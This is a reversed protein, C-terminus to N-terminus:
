TRQAPLTVDKLPNPNGLCIFAAWYRPHEYPLESNPKQSLRRLYNAIGKSRKEAWQIAEETLWQSRMQGITLNRIDSKAKRLAEAKSLKAQLLYNYFHEMLITTAVDDVKWLSMIVTKAGAQIFSRRLGIVTEGTHIDGLATECASTIVLETGALDISQVDLATLLGDEAEEPLIGGNLMTNVGAFALGSRLLPNQMGGLHLRESASLNFLLFNQNITELNPTIDELFYGHTAIHLIYPSKQTRSVLPKLAKAETISKVGLLKAIKEGEIETGPLPSFIQGHRSSALDRLSPTFPFKQDIEDTSIPQSVTTDALNYDPNAIILPKTVRAPIQAKFRLIDRGVNLFNFRYEDMLYGGEDTPLVEFPLCNLEGDPCIILDKSLYPKLKDFILSRLEIKPSINDESFIKDFALGRGNEVSERFERVRQDIPDAEGLDIMKLQKPAQAPLIFALYRPPLYQADGNAPIAKFNYNNFRVFEILTTGQPLELAITQFDANQLEKQLNLEPINLEQELTEAQQKLSALEEQYYPLQEPTPIDFCRKALQQRVQRWQELKPALHTYQESLLAIKQLIATETAIAKRRLILNYASQIAELTNPFHQFVLSLFLELKHYNQQLYTLRQNDTSISFIQSLTKLNIEAEEQMLKLAEEPCNTATYLLALIKLLIAYNAHDTGLTKAVIEKSEQCLKEAQTYQGILKYLMALNNLSTAYEPHETGISKRYIGLAQQALPLAESYQGMSEYLIALDSLSAAYDPHDNGLSKRRIELAQQYLSLAESYQGILLYLNALSNLSGAYHRHDDGLSKRYIELVQKRLPLVESYQGMLEYLNALGHLSTAYDPHDNGLSKRRIELAQQYFLLAKGYQGMLSYLDALNNLSTIYSPYNNRLKKSDIELVKQYLLLSKEYQGMSKYLNALNNLSDTYYSHDDGLSKCYIELAEQHLPLAKRYQGMLEYLNGLNNLSDAYKPHDTGLNKRKIKLAQQHLPLAERYQGMSEYLLALNNVSATYDPHDTGFSKRYIELAQQHLPLAERYQGMLKYLIALNSLSAAYAPHDTGLSKISIELAEQHTSLADKYQGISQYLIALNNLSDAYNYNNTLSYSKALDCVQQAFLIAQEYQGQQYLMIVTQNFQEIQNIIAQNM